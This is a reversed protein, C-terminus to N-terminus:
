CGAMLGATVGLCFKLAVDGGLPQTVPWPQCGECSVEGGKGSDRQQVDDGLDDGAEPKLAVREEAVPRLELAFKPVAKRAKLEKGVFHLGLVEDQNAPGEPDLKWWQPKEYVEYRTSELLM